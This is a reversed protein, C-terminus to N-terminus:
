GNMQSLTTELSNEPHINVIVVYHLKKVSTLTKIVVFLVETSFVSLKTTKKKGQFCTCSFVLRKLNGTLIRFINIQTPKLLFYTCIAM